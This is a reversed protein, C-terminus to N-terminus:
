NAVYSVSLGRKIRKVKGLEVLRIMISTARALGNKQLNERIENYVDPNTKQLYEKQIDLFIEKLEKVTTEESLGLFTDVVLAELKFRPIIKQLIFDVELESFINQIPTGLEENNWLQEFIPNFSDSQKTWDLALFEVGLESLTVQLRSDGHDSAGADILGMEFCAGAVRRGIEEPKLERGFFQDLFRNKSGIELERARDERRGRRMKKLKPTQEFKESTSPFGTTLKLTSEKFNIKSLRQTIYETCWGIETKVREFGIWKQDAEIMMHALITLIFKVPLFRNHFVWISGAYEDGYIDDPRPVICKHDILQTSRPDEFISYENPKELIPYLKGVDLRSEFIRKVNWSDNGIEQQSSPDEDMDSLKQIIPHDVAVTITSDGVAKTREYLNEIARIILEKENEYTGNELLEKIKDVVKEDLNIEILVSM